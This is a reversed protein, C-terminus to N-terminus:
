ANDKEKDFYGLMFVEYIYHYVWNPQRDFPILRELFDHCRRCLVATPGNKGGARKPIVHHTSSRNRPSYALKCKPCLVGKKRWLSM